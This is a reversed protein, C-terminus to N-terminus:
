DRSYGGLIKVDVPSGGLSVSTLPMKFLPDTISIPFIRLISGSSSAQLQLDRSISHVSTGIATYRSNRLIAGSEANRGAVATSVQSSSFTKSFGAVILTDTIKVDGPGNISSDIEMQISLLSTASVPIGEEFVVDHVQMSGNSGTANGSQVFFSEGDESFGVARWSTSPSTVEHIVGWDPWRRVFKAGSSASLPATGCIFLNGPKNWGMFLRAIDSPESFFPELDSISGGDAALIESLMYFDISATTSRYLAVADNTRSIAIGAGQISAMPIDLSVESVSSLDSADLIYIKGATSSNAHGSSVLAVLAEDESVSMPSIQGPQLTRNEVVSGSVDLIEMPAPNSASGNIVSIVRYPSFRWEEQPATQIEKRRPLGPLGGGVAPAGHTGYPYTM